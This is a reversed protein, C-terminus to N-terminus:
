KLMSVLQKAENVTMKKDSDSVNSFTYLPNAEEDFEGGGMAIASNHLDWIQKSQIMALLDLYQNITLNKIESYPLHTYIM